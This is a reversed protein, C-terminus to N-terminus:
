QAVFNQALLDKHYSAAERCWQAVFNECRWEGQVWEILKCSIAGSSILFIITVNDGQWILIGTTEVKCNV